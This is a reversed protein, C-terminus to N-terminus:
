TTAFRVLGPSLLRALRLARLLKLRLRLGLAAACCRLPTAIDLYSYGRVARLRRQM